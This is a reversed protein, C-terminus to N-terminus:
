KWKEEQECLQKWFKNIRKWDSKTIQKDRDIGMFLADEISEIDQHNLYLIIRKDETEYIDQCKKCKKKM